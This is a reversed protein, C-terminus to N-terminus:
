LENRHHIPAKRYSRLRHFPFAFLRREGPLENMEGRRLQFNSGRVRPLLDPSPSITQRFDSLKQAESLGSGRSLEVFCDFLAMEAAQHCPHQMERPGIMAVASQHKGSGFTTQNQQPSAVAAVATLRSDVRAVALHYCAVAVVM